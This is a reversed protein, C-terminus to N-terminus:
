GVVESQIDKDVSAQDRVKTLLHQIETDDPNRKLFQTYLERAEPRKDQSTLVTGFNIVIHRDDPSQQQAKSLHYMSATSNGAQWYLVGLNNHALANDPNTDLVSNFLNRADDFNGSQFMQEGKQILAGTDAITTDLPVRCLAHKIESYCYGLHGLIDPGLIDLFNGALSCLQPSTLHHTWDTKTRYTCGLNSHFPIELRNCLHRVTKQQNEVLQEYRVVVAKEKLTRIGQLLHAPAQLLDQYQPSTTLEQNTEKGVSHIFASLAALPNRLMFVFKSEPFVRALEPIIYYYRPTKDIIFTKGTTELLKSYLTNALHRVARYYLEEEEPIMKLLRNLAERAEFAGYEAKIGRPRLAYLPHLMIWPDPVTHVDPHKELIRHLLGAGSRPMSIIFIIHSGTKSFVSEKGGNYITRHSTNNIAKAQLQKSTTKSIDALVAELKHQVSTRVAEHADHLLHRNKQYIYDLSALHQVGGARSLGAEHLRYESLPENCYVTRLSKTMRIRMDYDEYITIHPDHFGISKWAQYNVLENRYLNKKPFARSFVKHFVYGQPPRDHEAWVGNRTGDPEIYFYNSFAISAEPNQLLLMLEKELKTPLYRDDGDLYSVFDGTVNQLAHIRSRAIGMNTSNFIPMILNPHRATYQEIIDQSGDSSCDDIIIIQHPKLTQNIVSEIAEILFAKQNYSTIYVSLRPHVPMQPTFYVTANLQPSSETTQTCQGEPVHSPAASVPCNFLKRQPRFGAADKQWAPYLRDMLPGCWYLFTEREQVTWNSWHYPTYAARNENTIEPLTGTDLGLWVLLSPLTSQLEELYLKKYAHVPVHENLDQEITRNIYSWYWCCRAFPNMQEWQEKQVDGCRDGRIRGDIWAKEIPVCDKYHDHKYTHGTYWKRAVISAIVDLGNRVLWVFQADPFTKHLVPILLSLTQNSEGYVKGDIEPPRTKLLLERLKRDTYKGYRYDSSEAILQPAPEHVCCCGSLRSLVTAITQTGSRGTSLVFFM